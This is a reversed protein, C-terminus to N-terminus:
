SVTSGHLLSKSVYLYSLVTTKAYLNKKASIGKWNKEFEFILSDLLEGVMACLHEEETYRLSYDLILHETYFLLDSTLLINDNNEILEKYYPYFSHSETIKMSFLDTQEKQPHMATLSLFIFIM